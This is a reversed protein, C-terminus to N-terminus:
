KRNQNNNNNKNQAKNSRNNKNNQKYKRNAEQYLKKNKIQFQSQQKNQDEVHDAVEFM